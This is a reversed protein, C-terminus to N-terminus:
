REIKKCISNIEKFSKGENLLFDLSMTEVIMLDKNELLDKYFNKNKNIYIKLPEVTLSKKFAKPIFREDIVYFNPKVINLTNPFTIKKLNICNYFVNAGMYELNKFEIEKLSCCNLFSYVKLFKLNEPLVVKELNQCEAFITQELITNKGEFVVEKLNMCNKFGGCGVIELNEPLVIRELNTHGFASDGIACLSENFEVEKLDKCWLFAKDDIVKLSEPFIVKEVDNVGSFTYEGIEEVGEPIILTNIKKTGEFLLFTDYIDDIKAKRLGIENLNDKHLIM